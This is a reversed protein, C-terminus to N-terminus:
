SEVSRTQNRYLVVRIHGVHVSNGKALGAIVLCEQITKEFLVGGNHEFFLLFGHSHVDM